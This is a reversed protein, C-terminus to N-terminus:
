DADVGGKPEIWKWEGTKRDHEAFGREIAQSQLEAVTGCVAMVGACLGVAFGIFMALPIDWWKVSDDM